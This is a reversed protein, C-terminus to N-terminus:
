FVVAEKEQPKSPHNQRQDPAFPMGKEQSLKGLHTASIISLVEPSLSASSGQWIGQLPEGLRCHFPLQLPVKM